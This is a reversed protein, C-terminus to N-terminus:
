RRPPPRKRSAPEAPADLAKRRSPAPREAGGELERRREILEAYASFQLLDTLLDLAPTIDRDGFLERALAVVGERAEQIRAELRRGKATLSLEIRRRDEEAARREVLGAEVLRDVLRSPHGSEAILLDGLQKLSLPGARAIVVIADAQAATIGLPRVADNMRQELERQAAKVALALEILPDM